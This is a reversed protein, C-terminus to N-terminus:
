LTIRRLTCYLKLTHETCNLAKATEKIGKLEIAKKFQDITYDNDWDDYLKWDAVGDPVNMKKTERITKMNYGKKYLYSYVSKRRIGLDKAIDVVSKNQLESKLFILGGAKDIVELEENHNAVKTRYGRYRMYNSIWCDDASQGLELSIDAYTKGLERQKLIYDYGGLDELVKIRNKKTTEIPKIEQKKPAVNLKRWGCGQKTCYASIDHQKINLKQAVEKQTLGKQKQAKCYELGGLNDLIKAAEEYGIQPQKYNSNEEINNRRFFNKMKDLLSM